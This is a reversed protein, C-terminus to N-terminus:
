RDESQQNVLWMWLCLAAWAVASLVTAYGPASASTLGYFIGFGGILFLAIKCGNLVSLIEQRIVDQRGYKDIFPGLLINSLFAGLPYAGLLLTSAESFFALEKKMFSLLPFIFTINLMVLFYCAALIWIVIHRDAILM